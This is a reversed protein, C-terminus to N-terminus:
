KLDDKSLSAIEEEALAIRATLKDMLGEQKKVFRANGEILGSTNTVVTTIRASFANLNAVSSAATEM